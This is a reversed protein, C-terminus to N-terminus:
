GVGAQLAKIFHYRRIGGGITKNSATDTMEERVLHFGCNRYLALAAHQLESTSLHLNQVGDVRCKEEAFTLMSQAIGQRRAQPSVYMRRLEADQDGYQELGFMGVLQSHREALWFSGNHQAYYDSVRGMEEELSREIYADFAQRLDPPSLLRNVEIFLDEVASADSPAFPRITVSYAM